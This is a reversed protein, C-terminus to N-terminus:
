AAMLLVRVYSFFRLASQWLATPHNRIMNMSQRPQITISLDHVRLTSDRGVAQLGQHGLLVGNAPFVLLLLCCGVRSGLTHRM